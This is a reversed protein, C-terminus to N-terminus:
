DNPPDVLFRPSAGDEEPQEGPYVRAVGELLGQGGFNRVADFVDARIEAPDAQYADALDAILEDITVEGDFCQWLVSATPNLVHLDHSEEEFLVVEGDVEVAAVSTRPRAVFAGDIEDPEILADVNV